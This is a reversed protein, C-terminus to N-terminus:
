NVWWHVFDNIELDYKIYQANKNKEIFKLYKFAIKPDYKKYFEYTKFKGSHGNIIEKTEMYEEMMKVIKSVM